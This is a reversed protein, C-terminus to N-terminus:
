RSHEGYAHGSVDVGYPNGGMMPLGTTPNCDFEYLYSTSNVGDYHGRYEDEEVGQPQAARIDHTHAAMHAANSHDHVTRSNASTLRARFEEILFLGRGIDKVLDLTVEQLPIGLGMSIAVSQHFRGRDLQNERKTKKAIARDLAWRQYFWLGIAIPFTVGISLLGWHGWGYSLVALPLVFTLIQRDTEFPVRGVPNIPIPCNSWVEDSPGWARATLFDFAHKSTIYGLRKALAACEAESRM